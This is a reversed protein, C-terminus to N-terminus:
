FQERFCQANDVAQRYVGPGTFEIVDGECYVICKDDNFFVAALDNEFARTLDSFNELYNLFFNITHVSFREVKNGYADTETKAVLAM